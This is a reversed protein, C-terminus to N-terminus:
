EDPLDVVSAIEAEYIHLWSWNADRSVDIIVSVTGSPVIRSLEEDTIDVHLTILRRM